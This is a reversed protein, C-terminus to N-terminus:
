KLALLRTKLHCEISIMIYKQVSRKKFYHCDTSIEKNSISVKCNNICQAFSNQSQIKRCSVLTM